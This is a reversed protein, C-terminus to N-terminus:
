PATCGLLGSIAKWAARAETESIDWDFLPLLNEETWERDVRFLTVVRAALLVRGHRFKSVRTDCLETFLSGLEDPLRQGDELPNRSWSTLLAETVHGVPHNIAQMVADDVDGERDDEYELALLRRCLDFFVEEHRDLAKAVKNLWRGVGHALSRLEEDPVEALARAM